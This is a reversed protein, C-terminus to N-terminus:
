FSRRVESAGLTPSWDNSVRAGEAESAEINQRGYMGLSARATSPIANGRRWKAITSAQSPKMPHSFSISPNLASTSIHKSIKTPISQALHPPPLCVEITIPLTQSTAFKSPTSTLLDIGLHSPQPYCNERCTSVNSPIINYNLHFHVLDAICLTTM